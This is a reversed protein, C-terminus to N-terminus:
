APPYKNITPPKYVFEYISFNKKFNTYVIHVQNNYDLIYWPAYKEGDPLSKCYLFNDKGIETIIHENRLFAKGVVFKIESYTM